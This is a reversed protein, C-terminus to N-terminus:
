ATFGALRRSTTGGGFTGWVDTCAPSTARRRSGAMVHPCSNRWRGRAARFRWECSEPLSPPACRKRARGLKLNGM